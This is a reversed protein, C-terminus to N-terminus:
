CCCCPSKYLHRQSAGSNCRTTNHQRKIQDFRRQNFYSILNLSLPPHPTPPFSSRSLSLSLFVCILLLTCTHLGAAALHRGDKNHPPFHPPSKLIFILLTRDNNYVTVTTTTTTPPWPLATCHSTARHTHTHSSCAPPRVTCCGQLRCSRLGQDEEWCAAARRGTGASETYFVRTPTVRPHERHDPEIGWRDPSM